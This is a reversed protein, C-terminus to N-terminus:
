PSPEGDPSAPAIRSRNALLISLNHELHDAQELYQVDGTEVAKDRLSSIQAQRVRIANALKANPNTTAERAAVGPVQPYQTAQEPYEPHQPLDHPLTETWSTEVPPTKGFVKHVFDSLGKKNWKRFQWKSEKDKTAVNHQFDQPRPADDSAYRRGSEHEWEHPDPCIPYRGSKSGPFGDGGQSGPHGPGMTLRQTAVEAARGAAREAARNAGQVMQREVQQTVRQNVQAQVRQQNAQTQVRQQDAQAQLRRQLQAQTRQQNVASASSRNGANDIAGAQGQGWAVDVAFVVLSATLIWQHRYM